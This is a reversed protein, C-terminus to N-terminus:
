IKRHQGKWYPERLINKQVKGLGSLPFADVFEMSRPCKYGAILERCHAILGGETANQGPTLLVVAHVSEGWKDHPIGIVAAQTVAPHACLAREVEGCYVNEGGSIIMDKLRDVIYIFGDEDMYGGDGTHMGGNRLAKATEEPRKWYGMMVQPGRVVIEGVSGRPLENDDADVIRVDSIYTPRGASRSKGSQVGAATHWEPALVSIMPGLETMGYGQSLAVEPLAQKLNELLGGSMPATGYYIQRLSTLDYRNFEPSELLMQIMSPVLLIDTVGDQEIRELVAEPEFAGQFSHSAGQLIAAHMVGFEALHFMPAVHLCVADPSSFWGEVGLSAASSWINLHTLMVGKPAGTTGGTYFIGALDTPTVDAVAVPKGAELLSEYDHMSEPCAEEGLYIKQTVTELEAAIEEAAARNADDVLLFSTEAENLSFRVEAGSWRYNVPVVVGGAWCVALLSEMYRDSNQAWIAVRDGRQLGIGQLAGALKKVREGLERFTRQRGKCLTATANPTLIISRMLGQTLLM